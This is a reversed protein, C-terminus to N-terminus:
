KSKRQMEWLKAYTLFMSYMQYTGEVVGATGNRWGGGKFYSGLFGTIMIRAFRCVNMRPHHARFRLEAEYESWKNTKSIMQEFNRHTYHLIPEFIQGLEGEVRPTEHVVGYWEKLKNRRFVRQVRDEFHWDKGYYFTKRGVYFGSLEPNLELKEKLEKIFEPTAQEDSDIYFLTDGKAVSAALNRQDSFDKFKNKVVKADLKEAIEITNDTSGGDIVVVEDALNKVSKIAEGIVDEEDRAIILVSIM